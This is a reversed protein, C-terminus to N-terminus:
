WVNSVLRPSLPSVGQGHNKSCLLQHLIHWESRTQGVIQSQAQM